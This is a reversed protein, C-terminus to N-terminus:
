GGGSMHGHADFRESTHGRKREDANCRTSILLARERIM